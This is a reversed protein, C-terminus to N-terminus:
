PGHACGRATLVGPVDPVRPVKPVQLSEVIRTAIGHPDAWMPVHGWWPEDIWTTHPPLHDRRRSGKPLIADCGGFVVTVPVAIDRAFLPSRTQRFTEEFATSRALDDITQIADSVPMRRSGISIPVALAVERVVPAYMAAKLLNPWKRVFLRLARFIVAAHLPPHSRWLGAPAIAVVTRALGRNAAALAISGGLSNGALDVPHDFGLMRLNIELGDVFNAITPPVGDPLPPTSGFGPLDFAIVRRSASLYPMVANWAASSMGIGHLLVLPPGSGSELYRWM